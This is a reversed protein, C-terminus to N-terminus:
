SEVGGEEDAEDWPTDCASIDNGYRSPSTLNVDIRRRNLTVRHATDTIKNMVVHSGGWAGYLGVRFLKPQGQTGRGSESEYVSETM